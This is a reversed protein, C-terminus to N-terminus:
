RGWFKRQWQALKPGVKPLAAVDASNLGGVALLALVYLVGSSFVVFLLGLWSGMWETLSPMVTVAYSGMITAAIAPKLLTALWPFGFRSRWNLYTVTMLAALGFAVNSGIAAGTLGYLPLVWLNFVAKIAAGLMLAIVPFFTRGMGQLGATAVQYFATFVVAPTLWILSDAAGPAHFLLTCIPLALVALGIAAPWSIITVLRLATLYNERALQSNGASWASSIAPVLSSGVAGTVMTPLFILVTAMGSFEGFLAAAERATYGSLQLGRPILVADITQMVPTVLGGLAIPMSLFLLSKWLTLYSSNKPLGETSTIAVERMLEENYANRRFSLNSKWRYFLFILLALGALGGTVAGFTAGAAALEIGRDMLFMTLFLITGVRVLQEAVQSLATPMMQQYGQFYGRIAAMMSALFIAPAVAWLSYIAREDKLITLALTEAYFFLLYTAGLGLVFLLWFSAKFIRLASRHDGQASKRAVLVSIAVPLGATALNLVMTYLPYAMQYLGVGEPGLIRALPIRYFAGLFKSIVGAATLWLAGTLLRKSGASTWWSSIPM